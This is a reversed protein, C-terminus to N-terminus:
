RYKGFIATGVRVMTSEECIALEFDNSMGMSLTDLDFGQTQLTSFTQYLNHFYQKQQETDSTLATITMLGRLKLRPLQVVAQALELLQEPAVGSKHPDHSVNVEICVNLPPLNMGRQENLREAIKIRCISQVWSFNEAIARTKNSQIVGIYHWELNLHQLAAIKPLAEQLYNEGFCFQQANVATQIAAISQGKSVAVLKVSGPPRQCRQEAATIQQRIYKLNSTITEM